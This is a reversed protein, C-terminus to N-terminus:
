TPTARLADAFASMSAFRASPDRAFAQEIARTVAPADALLKLAVLGLAFVDVTRTYSEAEFRSSGFDLLVVSGDHGLFVNSPEVDGHVVGRAHVHALSRAVREIIQLREQWSRHPHRQEQALTTGELLPFAIWGQDGAVGADLVQIVDPHYFLASVEAEHEFREVGVTALDILKLAVRRDGDRAEIVRPALARIPEFGAIHPLPRSSGHAIQVRM